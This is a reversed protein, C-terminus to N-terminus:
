RLNHEIGGWNNCIFLFLMLHNDHKKLEIIIYRKAEDGATGDEDGNHIAWDDYDDDDIDCDCGFDFTALISFSWCYCKM